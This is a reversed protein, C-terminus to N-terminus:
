SAWAAVAEPSTLREPPRAEDIAVRRGLEFAAALAGATELAHRRSSRKKRGSPPGVAPLSMPHQLHTAIEFADARALQELGGLRELLDTRKERAVIAVLEDVSRREVDPDLMAFATALSMGRSRM